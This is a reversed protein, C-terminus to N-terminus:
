VNRFGAIVREAIAQIEADEPVTRSILVGFFLPAVAMKMMLRTNTAPPLEGRTIAKSLLEASIRYREDWFRMRAEATSVEQERSIIARLLGSALPTALTSAISRLLATLDGHLSGTDPLPVDSKMRALAMDMVLEVKSPWRRYITTKNVGAREAIEPIEMHEYGVEQLLAITAAHVAIVTETSRGGTRRQKSPAQVQDDTKGNM